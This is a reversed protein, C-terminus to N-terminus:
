AASAAVDKNINPRYQDTRIVNTAIGLRRAYGERWRKQIERLPVQVFRQRCRDNPHTQFRFDAPWVSGGDALAVCWRCASGGSKHSKSKKVSGTRNLERVWGAVLGTEDYTHLAVSSSSQLAYASESDVFADLKPARLEDQLAYAAATDGSSLLDRFETSSTQELMKWLQVRLRIPDAVWKPASYGIPVRPIDTGALVQEVAWMDGLSWATLNTRGIIAAALTLFSGMLLSGAAVELWLSSIQDQAQATDDLTMQEYDVGDVPQVIV